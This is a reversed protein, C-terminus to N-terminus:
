IFFADKDAIVSKSSEIVSKSLCGFAIRLDHASNGVSLLNLFGLGKAITSANGGFSIFATTIERQNLSTIARKAELVPNSSSNDEGDSFIAFVAKVRMGQAKLHDVYETLKDTGKCIVDYLATGGNASYNDTFDAIKKYGGIDIIDNFTARAVLLKAEEKSAVLADKFDVLCKRMDNAYPSMSGSADVGIFILHVEESDIDEITTNQLEIEDLGYVDTM